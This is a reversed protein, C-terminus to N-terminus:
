GVGEGRHGAGDGGSLRISLDQGEGGIDGGEPLPAEHQGGPRRLVEDALRQGFAQGVLVPLGQLEDHSGLRGAGFGHLGGGKQMGPDDLDVVLVHPLPAVVSGGPFLRRLRNPRFRGSAVEGDSQQRM